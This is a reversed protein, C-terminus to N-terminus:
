SSKLATVEINLDRVENKDLSDILRRLKINISSLKDAAEQSNELDRVIYEINDNKSTKKTINKPQYINKFVIVIVLFSIFFFLFDNM